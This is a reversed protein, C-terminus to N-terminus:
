NKNYSRIKKMQENMLRFKFEYWNDFEELCDGKDHCDNILELTRRVTELAEEYDVKKLKASKIVKQAQKELSKLRPFQSEFTVNNTAKENMLPCFPSWKKHENKPDDEVRWNSAELDCFYCKTTDSYSLYYFGNRALERVDIYQKPWNNFSEIRFKEYNLIDENLEYRNSCIHCKNKGAMKM